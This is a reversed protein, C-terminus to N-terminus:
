WQVDEQSLLLAFPCSAEEAYTAAREVQPGIPRSRDAIAYALGIGKLVPETVRGKPVHYFVPDEVTGRYSVLMLLPFQYRQALSVMGAGMSLLGANQVFMATRVGGLRSGCAIALAEEEHTARVLRITSDQEIRVLIEGLWSDPVAIAVGFGLRKLTDLIESPRHSAAIQEDPTVM